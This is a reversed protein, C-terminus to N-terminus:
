RILNSAIKTLYYTLWDTEIIHYLRYKAVRSDMGDKRRSYRSIPKGNYVFCGEKEHYMELLWTLIINIPKATIGIGYESFMLLEHITSHGHYFFKKLNNEDKQSLHHLLFTLGKRVYQKYKKVGSTYLAYTAHFTSWPCSRTWHCKERHMELVWGGDNRQWHVLLDYAKKVRLDNGMGVKGFGIMIIAFRCPMNQLENVDVDYRNKDSEPIFGNRCQLSLIYDCAKKIRKDKIDFGIDGLLPLIWATTVYKPSVPTCGDKPIYSPALSWSGGACWSGDRNQKTFLEIVQTDKELKQWLKKAEPTNERKNLLFRHTLYQVPSSGHKLLWNINNEIQKKSLM